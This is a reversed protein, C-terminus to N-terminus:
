PWVESHSRFPVVVSAFISAFSMLECQGAVAAVLDSFGIAMHM